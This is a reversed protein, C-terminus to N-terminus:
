APQRRAPSAAGKLLLWFGLPVEFLLMPMWMYGAVPGKFLGVVQLPLGVVLLASAVVGIRALVVPIMRGRLLLWAFATSGMAFFIASLTASGSPMLLLAGLTNAAGAVPM